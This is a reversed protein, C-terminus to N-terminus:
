KRREPYWYEKYSFLKTKMPWGAKAEKKYNRRYELYIRLKTM